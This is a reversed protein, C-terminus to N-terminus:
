RAEMMARLRESQVEACALCIADGVDPAVALLGTAHDVIRYLDGDEFPAECRACCSGVLCECDPNACKSVAAELTWLGTTFPCDDAHTRDRPPNTSAGCYYCADANEDWEFVLRIPSYSTIEDAM